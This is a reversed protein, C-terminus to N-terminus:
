VMPGCWSQGGYWNISCCMVLVLTGLGLLIATTNGANAAAQLYSGLGALRFDRNGVNFSERGDLLVLARGRVM